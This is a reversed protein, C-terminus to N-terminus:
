GTRALREPSGLGPLENLVSRLKAETEASPERLPLRVSGVPHGMIEMAKKLPGPNPEAFIADIMPYLAKQIETAGAVDGSRVRRFCEVWHEVSVNATALVAGGAGLVAHAVLIPDEGSMITMREGAQMVVRTFKVLDYNSYKIGIAVGEEALTAVTEPAFSVNTRSPIDYLVLPLDVADRMRRHYDLLGQQGALVYFPTVVMLADAGAAAFARATEAAEAFGPSLVGAIVPGRGRADAVAAEIVAIRESPLLATYEGTGGLAVIGQAGGDFMRAVLRSYAAQDFENREDFPTVLAPFVGKLDEPKLM